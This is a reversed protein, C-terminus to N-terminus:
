TKPVCLPRQVATSTTRISSRTPGAFAPSL